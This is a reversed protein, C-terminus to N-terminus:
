PPPAELDHVTVGRRGGLIHVAHAECSYGVDGGEDVVQYRAPQGCRPPNTFPWEGIALIFTCGAQATERDVERDVHSQRFQGPHELYEGDPVLNPHEDM